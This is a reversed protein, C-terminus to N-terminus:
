VCVLSISGHAACPPAVRLGVHVCARQSREEGYEDVDDDPTAGEVQYAANSKRSLFFTRILLRQIPGPLLGLCAALLAVFARLYHILFSFRDGNPTHAIHLLTPFLLFAHLFRSAPILQAALLRLCIHAGMQTPLLHMSLTLDDMHEPM